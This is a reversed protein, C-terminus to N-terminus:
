ADKCSPYKEGVECRAYEDATVDREILGEDTTIFLEYEIECSKSKKSDKPKSTKGSSPKSTDPKKTDAKKPSSSKSGSKSGGSPGKGRSIVSFSASEMSVTLCNEIQRSEVPGSIESGGCAVLSAVGIVTAAGAAVYRM